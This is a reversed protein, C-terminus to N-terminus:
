AADMGETERDYPRGTRGGVRLSTVSRSGSVRSSKSPGADPRSTTGTSEERETVERQWPHSLLLMTLVTALLGAWLVDELTIPLHAIV